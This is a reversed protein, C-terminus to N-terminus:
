LFKRSVIYSMPVICIGAIFAPLRIVWINNGFLIYVIHVLLTHFLHNNPRIYCSLGIILPKSAYNIFTYSEDYRMPQFIYFCRIIFAYVCILALFFLYTRDNKVLDRCMMLINLKLLIYQDFIYYIYRLVSKKMIYVIFSIIIFILGLIRIKLIVKDFVYQNFLSSNFSKTLSHDDLFYLDPILKNNVILLKINDFSVYSILLIAGGIFFLIITLILIIASSYKETRM